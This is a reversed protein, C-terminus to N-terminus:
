EMSKLRQEVFRNLAEATLADYSNISAFQPGASTDTKIFGTQAITTAGSAVASKIGTMSDEIAICRAMEQRFAVLRTDDADETSCESVVADQTDGNGLDNSDSVCSVVGHSNGNRATDTVSGASDAIDSSRNKMGNAALIEEPVEIGLVKAAALYPAPNPKKPLDDEGCVYGVFAGEPAQRVLNEAMRRPSATVLVSPIGAAILSRLVDEVGPIWPMHEAEKRAVGEIMLRGVEPVSLKTGKDIMLQAVQPVPKGSCTWGIEESWYGGHEGAIDMEVQHWYPESDILTGDMDWLVAKLMWDSGTGDNEHQLAM